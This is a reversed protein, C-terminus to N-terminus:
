AAGSQREPAAPEPAGWHATMIKATKYESTEAYNEARRLARPDVDLGQRQASITADAEAVKEAVTRAPATNAPATAAMADLLEAASPVSPAPVHAISDMSPTTEARTQAPFHVLKGAKEAEHRLLGDRAKEFSFGAQAKKLEAKQVELIGSVHRRAALAFQKDSLGSRQADTAIDIFNSDEDFVFLKGLDDEDRRLIVQRDMYAALTEAWYVGNKWRVGRKGVLATGVYASLAVKLLSEGPAARAPVPSLHWKEMPTMRLSSHTRQHYEGDVWADLIAQLQVSDIAAQIVPRGTTKRARARLKQAQSVSHGIFGPLLSARERNFTGFLREVHPKDEPHGPLCVDLKIGLLDLASTITANVFGSGNDVKLIAPMVGWARITSVLMRRVSQASESEVVLFRSRRSWRDIIGLINWRGDTCMVDAKTTDIEWMEHAYSVTADMRGLAPRYRSKFRDPDHIATLLLRQDKEIRRIFRQLTRVDPLDSFQSALLKMVNRSSTRTEALIVLVANGVDPNKSFFDTGVPRHAPRAQADVIDTRRAILDARAADPLGMASYLFGGGRRGERSKSPWAEKAARFQVGRKTTPLGSLRLDAIEQASLWAADLPTSQGM